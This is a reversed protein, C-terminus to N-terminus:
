PSPYVLRAFAFRPWLQLVVWADKKEAYEDLKELAEKLTKPKEKDDIWKSKSLYEIEGNNRITADLVEGSIRTCFTEGQRLLMIRRYGRLTFLNAVKEFGKILFVEDYWGHRQSIMLRLEGLDKAFGEDVYIDYKTVYRYLWFGGAVVAVRECLVHRPPPNKTQALIYYLEM